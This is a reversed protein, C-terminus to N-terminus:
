TFRSKRLDSTSLMMILCVEQLPWIVKGINSVQTSNALISPRHGSFPWYPQLTPKFLTYLDQVLQNKKQEKRALWTPSLESM